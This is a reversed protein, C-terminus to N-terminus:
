RATRRIRRVTPTPEGSRDVFVCLVGHGLQVAGLRVLVQLLGERSLALGVPAVEVERLLGVDLAVGVDRRQEPGNGLTLGPVRETVEVEQGLDAVRHRANRDARRGVGELRRDLALGVLVGLHIGPESAGGAVLSELLDALPQLRQRACLLAVGASEALAEVLDASGDSVVDHMPPGPRTRPRERSGRLSPPKASRPQLARPAVMRLSVSSSMLSRRSYSRSRSSNRRCMTSIFFRRRTCSPSRSVIVKSFVSVIRNWIWSIARMSRM